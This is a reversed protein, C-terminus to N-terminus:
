FCARTRCVWEHEVQLRIEVPERWFHARAHVAHASCWALEMNDRSVGGDKICEGNVSSETVGIKLNKFFEMMPIKLNHVALRRADPM